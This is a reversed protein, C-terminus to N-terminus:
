EEDESNGSDTGGEEEEDESSDVEEPSGVSDELSMCRPICFEIEIEFSVSYTKDSIVKYQPSDESKGAYQTGELNGLEKGQSNKFWIGAQHFNTMKLHAYVKEDLHKIGKMIDSNKILQMGAKDRSPTLVKLSPNMKYFRALPHNDGIMSDVGDNGVRSINMNLHEPKIHAWKQVKKDFSPYKYVEKKSSDNMGASIQGAIKDFTVMNVMSTEINFGDSLIIDVANPLTNVRDSVSISLITVATLDNPIVKGDPNYSKIFAPVCSEIAQFPIEVYVGGNGHKQFDSLTGHSSVVTKFKVHEKPHTLDVPKASGYYKEAIVTEVPVLPEPKAVANARGTRFEGNPSRPPSPKSAGTSFGWKPSNDKQQKSKSM